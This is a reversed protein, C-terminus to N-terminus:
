FIEDVESILVVESSLVFTSNGFHGKKPPEVTYIYIDLFLTLYLGLEDALLSTLNGIHLEHPLLIVRLPARLHLLSQESFTLCVPRFLSSQLPTPLPFPLPFHLLLPLTLDIRQIQSFPIEVGKYTNLFM